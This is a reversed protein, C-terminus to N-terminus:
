TTESYMSKQYLDAFKNNMYGSITSKKTNIFEIVIFHFYLFFTPPTIWPIISRLKM